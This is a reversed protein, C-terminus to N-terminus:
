IFRISISATARETAEWKEYRFSDKLNLYTQHEGQLNHFTNIKACIHKQVNEMARNKRRFTKNQFM